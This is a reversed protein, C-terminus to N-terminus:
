SPECRSPSSSCPRSHGPHMRARRTADLLTSAGGDYDKRDFSLIFLIPEKARLSLEKSAIGKAKLTALFHAM